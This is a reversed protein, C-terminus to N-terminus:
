WRKLSATFCILSKKRVSTFSGFQRRSAGLMGPELVSYGPGAPTPTIDM